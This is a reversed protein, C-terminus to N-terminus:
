DHQCYVLLLMKIDLVHVHSSFSMQLKVFSQIFCWCFLNNNRWMIKRLSENINSHCTANFFVGMASNNNLLFISGVTYLQTWIVQLMLTGYLM